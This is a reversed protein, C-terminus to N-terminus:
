SSASSSDESYSRSLLAFGIAILSLMVGLALFKFLQSAVVLTLVGFFACFLYYAVVIQRQTFGM